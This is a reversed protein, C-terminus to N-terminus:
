SCKLVESDASDASDACGYPQSVRDHAELAELALSLAARARLKGQAERTERALTVLPLGEVAELLDLVASEPVGGDARPYCECVLTTAESGARVVCADYWGPRVQTLYAIPDYGLAVAQRAAEGKLRVQTVSGNGKAM